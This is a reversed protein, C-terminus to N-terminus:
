SAVSLIKKRGSISSILFLVGFILPVGIILTLGVRSVVPGPLAIIEDIPNMMSTSAGM